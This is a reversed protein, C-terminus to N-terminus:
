RLAAPRWIRAGTSNKRDRLARGVDVDLRVVDKFQSIRDIFPSGHDILKRIADRTAVELCAALGIVFLSNVPGPQPSTKKYETFSNQLYFLRFSAPYYAPFRLNRPKLRVSSTM